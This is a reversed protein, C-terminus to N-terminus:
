FTNNLMMRRFYSCLGFTGNQRFNGRNSYYWANSAGPCWSLIM